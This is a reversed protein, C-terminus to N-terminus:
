NALKLKYKQGVQTSFEILPSQEIKISVPAEEHWVQVSVNTRVVCVQGHHSIIEAQVLQGNQWSISVEFGGRACLGSVSGSPWASPIAPLLHIYGQHSQVLMEAVGATYGFNGDIQFPPHADFLNPYLGGGQGYGINNTDVPTFLLEILRYSHDGDRLRAWLNLKWALSWGTSADGRIELTKIVADVLDPTTDPSLQRGPFVGFLHSVHRHQPDTEQLDHGWEQLQGRSGIQYPLLRARADRLQDAFEVHTDLVASAEICSTFLDWIIAMDMTAAMTVAARQGDQTFFDLEPSTSPATVLHGKGDDVLWDLYFEAAGAILPWAINKLFDKDGTFAYHEWLHQCLWGASMQWNAWMPNGTREGTPATQRWIDTNHHSVWGQANYNIQATLRGKVSLGEILDFLPLHCESLNTTEALWYNMQANINITWNSSWPPRVQDNWIGQLNAPQTGPRSSAILLYRGYQFLLAELQPDPSITTQQKNAHYRQLRQDTPLESAENTGLNLSVRQFLSQYDKIHRELLTEYSQSAARDLHKIAIVSPDIGERLPSRNYGNYSTAASVLLTVSNAKTVCLGNADITISGGDTIARLYLEFRMGEDDNYIIPNAIDVRYSPEVHAPAQGKLILTNTNGPEVSYHLESDLQATFSLSGRHSATLHIAIIQDPYSAFITRTYTINGLQFRTTALAQDLNLDRYYSDAQVDSPLDLSLHLNSLPLYSQVYPGQMLQSLKSAAVYDGEFILRRVEPLLTRAEPNNWDKPEGSWLTDENFQIREENIGGFIMAGLRGNGVPLAEVWNRAPQQYWLTYHSSNELM